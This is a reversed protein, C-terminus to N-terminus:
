RRPSKIHMTAQQFFGGEADIPEVSIGRRRAEDVSMVKATITAGPALATRPDIDRGFGLVGIM